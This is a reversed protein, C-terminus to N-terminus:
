FEGCKESTSFFIGKKSQNKIRLAQPRVEISLSIHDNQGKVHNVHSKKIYIETLITDFGILLGCLM